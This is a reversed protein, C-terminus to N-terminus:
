QGYFKYKYNQGESKSTNLYINRLLIKNCIHCSNLLKEPCRFKSAKLCNKDTTHIIALRGWILGLRLLSLWLRSDKCM